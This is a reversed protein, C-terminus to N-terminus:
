ASRVTKELLGHETCYIYVKNSHNGHLKPIRVEANQEPYLKVLLVSDYFVCAAFSIYHAKTMAHNMSIFYDDEIEEVLVEHNEIDANTHLPSLKRGCCSVTAESLGFLVNGCTACVYFKIRKMNGGRTNPELEGSLLQEIDVELIQSLEGLLSVDPCGRGREWKSITRDSINMADALTKQTMQKERRLDSILKGVKICDM